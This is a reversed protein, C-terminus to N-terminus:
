DIVLMGNVVYAAFGSVELELSFVEAARTAEGEGFAELTVREAPSTSNIRAPTGTPTALAPPARLLTAGAALQQIVPRDQSRMEQSRMERGEGHLLSLNGMHADVEAQAVATDVARWVGDDALLAHNPTFFPPLRVVGGGKLRLTAGLLPLSVNRLQQVASVRM